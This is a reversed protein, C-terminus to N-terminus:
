SRQSLTQVSARCICLKAESTIAVSAVRQSMSGDFSSRENYPNGGKRLRASAKVLQVRVCWVNLAAVDDSGRAM